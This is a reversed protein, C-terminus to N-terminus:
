GSVRGVEEAGDHVGRSVDLFRAARALHPDAVGAGLAGAAGEAGQPAERRRYVADGDV